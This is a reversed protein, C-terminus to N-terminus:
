DDGDMPMILQKKLQQEVELQYVRTSLDRYKDELKRYKFAIVCVVAFMVLIICTLVEFIDKTEIKM